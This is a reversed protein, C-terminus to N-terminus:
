PRSPEQSAAAAADFQQLRQGAQANQPDLRLARRYHEAAENPRGADALANALSVEAMVSNPDIELAAQYADIAADFKGASALATGLDIRAAASGPAVEVAKELAAQAEDYKQQFCLSHGLGQYARMDRPNIEIARELHEAAADFRGLRALATGLHYHAMYSDPQIALAREYHEIAAPFQEDRALAYGLGVEAVVNDSTSDIAHAWLAADNSWFSAQWASWATLAMLALGACLGLAWCPAQTGADLGASARAAFSRAALRAVSWTAAISLGISPLYMYRDARAHDAVGVLGLVPALMGLFWFWGVFWYPARRRWVIVAVTVAALIAVAQAVKWGPYGGPPLPYFAALDIPLFFQRAYEVYSVAANGLRAAIGLPPAASFHTRMTLWCDGVALAALPLKELVLWLADPREVEETWAPYDAADGIQGLPWFDLLLLLAPLTVLMPKAMLGL